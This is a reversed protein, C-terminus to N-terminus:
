LLVNRYEKYHSLVLDKIEEVSLTLVTASYLQISNNKLYFIFQGLEKGKLEPILEMLFNGNTKSAILKKLDYESQLIEAEKRIKPYLNFVFETREEKTLKPVSPYLHERERSYQLFMNYTKRKRDRVRNINNLNELKFIEPNYYPSSMVFDFLDQYTDFGKMFKLKDLGLINLIDLYNTSLLHEKLTADGDRQVYYLGEHGHKFGLQKAMRGLLNGLDNHSFYNCAYNYSKEAIFILDIQFSKYLFSVVEGNSQYPYFNHLWTLALSKTEATSSVIIDMDGFDEKDKIAQTPFFTKIGINHLHESIENVYRNYDEKNLRVVNHTNIFVNGGM